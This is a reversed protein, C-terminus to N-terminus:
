IFCWSGYSGNEQLFKRILCFMANQWIMFSRKKPPNIGGIVRTSPINQTFGVNGDEVGPSNKFGSAASTCWPRIRTRLVAQNYTVRQYNSM